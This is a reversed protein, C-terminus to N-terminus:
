RGSFPWRWRWPRSNAAVEPQSELALPLQTDDSAPANVSGKPPYDLTAKLADIRTPDFRPLQLEGADRWQRVKAEAALRREGLSQADPGAARYVTTAGHGFSAGSAGVIDMIRLSLDEQVELFDSFDNAHVYSFIEIQLSDGGFGLFRVRAPDADVRPHAYLMARIEVLLYRIQDVSTEQRFRLTPSFWYNDRRSYNEIQMASFTGNPITVVTRDLTRVRTSRLGIDEITGMTDGFKCFDGVKVPQDALLAVSGVLHEITKQAGLAIALGGIGLAAIGATVNFGLSNLAAIIAIAAILFKATRVLFSMAALAGSRSRRSLREVGIETVAEALRWLFWALAVWAVIEAVTGVHRRAVVSVGLYAACISFLLVSLYVALPRRSADLLRAVRLGPVGWIMRAAIVGIATLALGAPWAVLAIVLLVVWQGVPAGLLHPGDDLSPLWRDLLGIEIRNMLSPIQELTRSSVLWVPQGAVDENSGDSAVREAILAVQGQPTRLTAFREQGPLLGDDLSGAPENSLQWNATLWGGRDLLAQLDRALQLGVRDRRAPAIMSLDLYRSARLYNEAGMADVMGNVM